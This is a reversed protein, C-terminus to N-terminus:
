HCCQHDYRSQNRSRNCKQDRLSILLTLSLSQVNVTCEFGILVSNHHLVCFRALRLLGALSFPMTTVLEISTNWSSQAAVKAVDHLSKTHYNSHHEDGRYAHSHTRISLHWQLRPCHTFQRSGSSKGGIRHWVLLMFLDLGIRKLEWPTYAESERRALMAASHMAASRAATAARRAARAAPACSDVQSTLQYLACWRKVKWAMRAMSVNNLEM